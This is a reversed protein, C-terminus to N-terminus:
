SSTIICLLAAWVALDDIVEIVLLDSLAVHGGTNALGPVLDGSEMQPVTGPAFCGVLPTIWWRFM